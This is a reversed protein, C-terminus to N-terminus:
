SITRSRTPTAAIRSPKINKVVRSRLGADLTRRDKAYDTGRNPTLGGHNQPEWLAESERCLDAPDAGPAGRAPDGASQITPRAMCLGREAVGASSPVEEHCPLQLPTRSHVCIKSGTTTPSSAGRKKLIANEEELDRLRKQLDRAAQDEPRLQGSGIFLQHPDRRTAKIGGQLTNSPIELEDAVQTVSKNWETTLRVAQLKFEAHYQKGM